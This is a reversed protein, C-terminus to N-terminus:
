HEFPSLQLKRCSPSLRAFGVDCGAGEVCCSPFIGALVFLGPLRLGDPLIDRRGHLSCRLPAQVFGDQSFSMRRLAIKVFCFPFAFPTFLTRICVALNIFLRAFPRFLITVFTCHSHQLICSFKTAYRLIHLRRIKMSKM